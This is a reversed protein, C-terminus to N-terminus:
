ILVGGLHASLFEWAGTDHRGTLRIVHGEKVRKPKSFPTQFGRAGGGVSLFVDLTANYLAGCVQGNASALILSWDYILLTKGVPVTYEIATYWGGTDAWITGYLDVDEAQIAGWDPVLKVPILQLFFGIPLTFDPYGVPDRKPKYTRAM